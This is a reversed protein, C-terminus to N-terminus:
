TDPLLRLPLLLDGEPIVLLFPLSLLQLPLGGKAIFSCLTPWGLKLSSTTPNPNSHKKPLKKPKPQQRLQPANPKPPQKKPTKSPRACPKSLPM